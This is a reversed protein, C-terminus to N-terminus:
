SGIALAQAFPNPIAAEYAVEEMGGGAPLGIRHAHLMLRPASSADGYLRDGLIPAGLHALHVRLQHTRGTEPWLWVPQRNSHPADLRYRTKAWQGGSRVVRMQDRRNPDEALPLVIEGEPQLENPYAVLALYLKDVRRQQFLADLTKNIEPYKQSRTFLVVGSTDRDLRHFLTLAEGFHEQALAWLNEGKGWRTSESLLGAPKDVAIIADDDALLWAPDFFTPPQELDAPPNEVRIRDGNRVQWSALWVGKGNVSVSGDTIAAGVAKRGWQPFADRLTKDLRQPSQLGSVRYDVASRKHEAM